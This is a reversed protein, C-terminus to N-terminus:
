DFLEILADLVNIYAYSPVKVSKGTQTDKIIMIPNTGDQKAVFRTNAKRKDEVAKQAKKQEDLEKQREEQKKKILYQEAKVGDMSGLEFVLDDASSIVKTHVLHEEGSKAMKLVTTRVEPERNQATTKHLASVISWYGDTFNIGVCAVSYGKKEAKKYEKELDMLACVVALFSDTDLYQYYQTGKLASKWALTPVELLKSNFEYNDCGGHADQSWFGLKKGNYYVSGQWLPEGEHGRYLKLNRITVGNLSAM